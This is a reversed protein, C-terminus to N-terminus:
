FQVQLKDVEDKLTEHRSDLTGLKSLLDQLEKSPHFGGSSSPRHYDHNLPPPTVTQTYNQSTESKHSNSAANFQDKLGNLAADLAPWTAYSDLDSYSVAAIIKNKDPM